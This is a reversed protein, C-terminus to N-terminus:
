KLNLKCSVWICWAESTLVFIFNMGYSDYPLTHNIAHFNEETDESPSPSAINQLLINDPQSSEDPIQIAAEQISLMNQHTYLLAVALLAISTTVYTQLSPLPLRELLIAPM